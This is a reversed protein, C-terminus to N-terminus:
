GAPPVPGSRFNSSPPPNWDDDDAPEPADADPDEARDTPPDDHEDEESPRRGPM